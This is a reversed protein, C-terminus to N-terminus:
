NDTDTGPFAVLSVGLKQSHLFHELTRSLVPESGENRLPLDETMCPIIATLFM